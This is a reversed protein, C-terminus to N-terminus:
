AGTLLSQEINGQYQLLDLRNMARWCGEHERRRALGEQEGVGLNRCEGRELGKDLEGEDM